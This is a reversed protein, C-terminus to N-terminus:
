NPTSKVLTKAVWLSPIFSDRARFWMIGREMLAAINV